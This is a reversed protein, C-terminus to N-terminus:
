SRYIGDPELVTADDVTRDDICPEIRAGHGLLQARVRRVIGKDRGAVAPGDRAVREVDALTLREGDILITM